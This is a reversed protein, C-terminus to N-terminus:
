CAVRRFLLSVLSFGVCVFVTFNCVYEAVCCAAYVRLRKTRCSTTVTRVGKNGHQCVNEAFLAVSIHYGLMHLATEIGHIKNTKNATHLAFVRIEFFLLIVCRVLLKSHTKHIKQCHFVTTTIDIKTKKRCVTFLPCVCCERCAEQGTDPKSPESCLRLLCGCVRVCAM